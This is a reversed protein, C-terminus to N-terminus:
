EKVDHHAKLINVLYLLHEKPCSSCLEHSRASTLPVTVLAHVSKGFLIDETHIKEQSPQACSSYIMIKTSNSQKRYTLLMPIHKKHNIPKNSSVLFNEHTELRLLVSTETPDTNLTHLLKIYLCPTAQTPRRNNIECTM